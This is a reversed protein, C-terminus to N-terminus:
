AATLRTARAYLLRDLQAADLGRALEVIEALPGVPLGGEESSLYVTRLADVTYGLRALLRLTTDTPSHHTPTHSM